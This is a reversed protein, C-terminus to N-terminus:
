GSRRWTTGDPGDEIAVGAAALQDRIADAAEFDRDKRAQNRKGILVEIEEAPMDGEVHGAFWEDPDNGLLGMLEGAAYMQAALEEMEAPDNSKNLARALAFFEALAKPTNLHWKGALEAPDRGATLDNIWGGVWPGHFGMRRNIRIGRALYGERAEEYQKQGYPVGTWDEERPSMQLCRGRLLEMQTRALQSTQLHKRLASLDDPGFYVRPHVGPAPAELAAPM